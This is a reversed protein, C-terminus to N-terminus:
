LLFYINIFSCKLLYWSMLILFQKQAKLNNVFIILTVFTKFSSHAYEPFSLM